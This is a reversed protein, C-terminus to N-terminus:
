PLWEFLTSSNNSLYFLQNFFYRKLQSNCDSCDHVIM